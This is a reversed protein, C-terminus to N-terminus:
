NRCIKIDRYDPSYINLTKFNGWEEGEGDKDITDWLQWNPLTSYTWFTKGALGPATRIRTRTEVTLHHPRWALNGQETNGESEDGSAPYHDSVVHWANTGSKSLFMATAVWVGKYSLIRKGQPTSLTQIMQLTKQDTSTSCPPDALFMVQCPAAGPGPLQWSVEGYSPWTM